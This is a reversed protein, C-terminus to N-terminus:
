PPGEATIAANSFLEREYFHARVLRYSSNGRLFHLKVRSVVSYSFANTMGTSSKFRGVTARVSSVLAIALMWGTMRIGQVCM